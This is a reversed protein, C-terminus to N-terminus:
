VGPLHKFMKTVIGMHVHKKSFKPLFRKVISLRTKRTKTSTGMPLIKASKSTKGAVSPSPPPRNSLATNNSPFSKKSLWFNKSVMKGIYFIVKLHFINSTMILGFISKKSLIVKKTSFNSFWMILPLKLIKKSQKKTNKKTKKQLILFKSVNTFHYFIDSKKVFNWIGVYPSKSTFKMSIHSILLIKKQFQSRSSHAKRCQIPGFYVKCFHYNGLRLENLKYYLDIFVHVIRKEASFVM